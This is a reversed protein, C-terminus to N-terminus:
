HFIVKKTMSIDINRFFLYPFTPAKSKKSLSPFNASKFSSFNGGMMVKNYSESIKYAPTLKMLM